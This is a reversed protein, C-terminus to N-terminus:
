LEEKDNSKLRSKLLEIVIHSYLKYLLNDAIMVFWWFPAVIVWLIAYIITKMDFVGEPFVGGQNAM